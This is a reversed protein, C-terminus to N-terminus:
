KAVQASVKAGSFTIINVKYVPRPLTQKAIILSAFYQSFQQQTKAVDFDPFIQQAVSQKAAIGYSAFFPSENLNLQLCQLLNTIWVNSDDGNTATDV